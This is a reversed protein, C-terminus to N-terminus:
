VLQIQISTLSIQKLSTLDLIFSKTSDEKEPTIQETEQQTKVLTFLKANCQPCKHKSNEIENKGCEHCHKQK